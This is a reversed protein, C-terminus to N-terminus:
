GLNQFLILADYSRQRSSGVEAMKEKELKERELRENELREKELREREQREREQREKEREKKSVRKGSAPPKDKGTTTATAADDDATIAQSTAGTSCM